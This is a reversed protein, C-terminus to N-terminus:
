KIKNLQSSIQRKYNSLNGTNPTLKVQKLENNLREINDPIAPDFDTNIMDMHDMCAGFSINARTMQQTYCVCGYIKNNRKGISYKKRNLTIQKVDEVLICGSLKPYSKINRVSDYVPATYPIDKIRPEFQAIYEEKTLPRNKNNNNLGSGAFNFIGPDLQEATKDKIQKSQEATIPKTSDVFRSSYFRYGLFLGIVMCIGLVWLAKPPKFRMHHSAGDTVSEYVGFYAKDLLIRSQQGDEFHNFREVDMNVREFEWRKIVQGKHGRVYHIHSNCLKRFHVDILSPNQTICHLEHGRHRMTELAQAYAPVEATQKRVRFFTQAEDIVIIANHPLEQWKHPDDFATWLAQLVEANPNFSRINHYFVERGEKAAKLDVEKITNLTKGNGQLGTRLVFM